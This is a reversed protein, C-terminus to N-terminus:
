KTNFTQNFKDDSMTLYIIWEIVWLIAPIWWLVGTFLLGVYIIGQIPKWLIFKHIWLVWVFIAVIGLLRRWNIM